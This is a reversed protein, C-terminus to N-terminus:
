ANLSEPWGWKWRIGMRRHEFFLQDGTVVWDQCPHTRSVVWRARPSPSWLRWRKPDWLVELHAADGTHLRVEVDMAVTRAQAAHGAEVRQGRSGRPLRTPGYPYYLDRDFLGQQSASYRELEMKYSPRLRPEEPGRPASLLRKPPRLVLAPTSTRAAAALEMTPAENPESGAAGRRNWRAMRLVQQNWPVAQPPPPGPPPPPPVPRRRGVPPTQEPRDSPESSGPKPLYDNETFGVNKDHEFRKWWTTWQGAKAVRDLHFDSLLHSVEVWKGCLHCAWWGAKGSPDKALRIWPLNHLQRWLNAERSGNFAPVPRHDWEEKTFREPWDEHKAM